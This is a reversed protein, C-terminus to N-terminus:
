EGSENQESDKPLVVMQQGGGPLRIHAVSLSGLAAKLAGDVAMKYM